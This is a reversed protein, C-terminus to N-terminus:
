RRLAPFTDFESQTHWSHAMTLSPAPSALAALPQNMIGQFRLFRVSFGRTPPEIGGRAVMLRVLKRYSTIPSHRPFGSTTGYRHGKGHQRRLRGSTGCRSARLTAGDERDGLGRAGPFGSEGPLPRESTVSRVTVASGTSTPWFVAVNPHLDHWVNARGNTVAFQQACGGAHTCCGQRMRVGLSCCSPVALSWAKPAATRTRRARLGRL